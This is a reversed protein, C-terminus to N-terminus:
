PRGWEVDRILLSDGANTVVVTVAEIFTDGLISVYAWGTDGPQKAPWDDLAFQEDFQVQAPSGETYGDCMAAFRDRLEEPSLQGRLDPALLAHASQWDARALASAFAVAVDAYPKM